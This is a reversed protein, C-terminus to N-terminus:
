SRSKPGSFGTAHLARLRDVGDDAIWPSTQSEPHWDTFSRILSAVLGPTQLNYAREEDWGLEVTSEPAGVQVGGEAFFRLRAPAKRFGERYVTLEEAYRHEPSNRVAARVPGVRWLYRRGDVVIKRLKTM